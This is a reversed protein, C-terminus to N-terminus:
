RNLWGGDVAITHGCIYKAASSALFVVTGVLDEPQGWRGFPIRDTIAANRQEDARLASTNDTAMYGPAVANVNIGHEAWENALVRTVGVIGHKSATYSAVNIGGQYSLMSAINVIKGQIKEKIWRQALGQSLLFPATLNIELVEDWDTEPFEAAPSRRIIGANNVLIEPLVGASNIKTIVNQTERRISLDAQIGHFARGARSVQTAAEGPSERYVGVIDAGAEALGHAIGLGLGRNCGTVLATKGELSFQKM